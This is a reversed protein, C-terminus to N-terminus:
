TILTACFEFPNFHVHFSRANTIDNLFMMFSIDSLAICVACCASFLIILFASWKCKFKTYQVCQAHLMLVENVFVYFIFYILRWKIPIFGNLNLNFNVIGSYYKWLNKLTLYIESIMIYNECFRWNNLLFYIIDLFIM